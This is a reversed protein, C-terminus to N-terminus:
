QQVIPVRAFADNARLPIAVAATVVGRALLELAPRSSSADHLNGRFGLPLAAYTSRRM